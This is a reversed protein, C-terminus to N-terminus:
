ASPEAQGVLDGAVDALAAKLSRRGRALLSELAEISIELVGAAEANSMEEFHCLTIAARQREPLTMLADKVRQARQVGLIQQAPHPAPDAIETAADEGVWRGRKRLRDYCANVAVRHLWTSFKAEGDRWKAANRWVQLFVDQAVDEAEAADGLLRRALGVVRRMHARVLAEAAATDGAGARKLLDADPDRVLYARL